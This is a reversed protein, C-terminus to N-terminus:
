TQIESASHAIAGHIDRGTTWGTRSSKTYFALYDPDMAKSAM